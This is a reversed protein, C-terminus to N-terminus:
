IGFQWFDEQCKGPGSSRQSKVLMQNEFNGILIVKLSCLSTGDLGCNAEFNGDLVCLSM